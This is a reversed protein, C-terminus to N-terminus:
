RQQIDPCIQTLVYKAKIVRIIYQSMNPDPCLQTLSMFPDLVYNPMPCIQCPVYKAWPCIQSPVYKAPCLHTRSMNPGYPVYITLVHKAVSFISSMTLQSMNPPCESQFTSTPHFDCFVISAESAVKGFSAPDGLLVGHSTESAKAGHM